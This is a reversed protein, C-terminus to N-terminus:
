VSWVAFGNKLVYHDRLKDTSKGDSILRSFEKGMFNGRNRTLYGTRVEM